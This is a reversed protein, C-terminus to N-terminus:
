ILKLYHENPKQFFFSLVEERNGSTSEHFTILKRGEDVVWYYTFVLNWQPWKLATYSSFLNESRQTFNHELVESDVIEGSKDRCAMCMLDYGKANWKDSKSLVLPEGDVDWILKFKYEELIQHDKKSGFMQNIRLIFDSNVM